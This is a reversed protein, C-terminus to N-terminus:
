RRAALVPTRAKCFSAANVLLWVLISAVALVDALRDILTISFAIMTFLLGWRDAERCVAMGWHPRDASGGELSELAQRRCAFDLFPRRESGGMAEQAEASDLRLLRIAEALVLFVAGALPLLSALGAAYLLEGARHEASHRRAFARSRTCLIAGLGVLLAALFFCTHELLRRSPPDRIFRWVVDDRDFFYSCVAVGVLLLRTLSPFRLEFSTARM